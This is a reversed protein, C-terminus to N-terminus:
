IVYLDVYENVPMDFLRDIDLSVDLITKQQKEPFCRALNIRFKELLLPIGEARRRRHGVPYEVMVENLKSGDIFEITIGNAISRKGPDLYDQTFAPDELCVMKDRLRDIRPDAAVDDEYDAATLRGFILPIAVMYQIWHDRDAPNHLPGKKDIIRFTYIVIVPIGGCLGDM